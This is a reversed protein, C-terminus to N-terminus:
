GGVLVFNCTVYKTPLNWGVNITLNVFWLSLYIKVESNTCKCTIHQLNLCM